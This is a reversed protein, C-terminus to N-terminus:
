FRFRNEKGGSESIMQILTNDDLATLFLATLSLFGIM